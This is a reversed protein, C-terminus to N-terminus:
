TILVSSRRVPALLSAEALAAALKRVGFSLLVFDRNM